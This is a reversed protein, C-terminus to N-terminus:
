TVGVGHIPHPPNTTPPPPSHPTSHTHTHTHFPPPPPPAVWYLSKNTGFEDYIWIERFGRRGYCQNRKHLRNSIKCLNYSSRETCLTLVILCSSFLNHVFSVERYKFKLHTESPYEINCMGGQAHHRWWISVNEAYSAMQASFEGTGPSNGACLGTARLKSTKKSRRGFLRNLLCDHPQHDSVGDLENHRWQLPIM